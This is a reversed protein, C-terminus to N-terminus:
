PNCSKKFCCWFGAARRVAKVGRQQMARVMGQFGATLREQRMSAASAVVKAPWVGKFIDLHRSVGFTDPHGVDGPPRPFQTDLMIIGLVSPTTIFLHIGSMSYTILDFRM